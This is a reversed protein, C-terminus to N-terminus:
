ESAVRDDVIRRAGAVRPPGDQEVLEIATGSPGRDIALRVGGTADGSYERIQQNAAEFRGLM